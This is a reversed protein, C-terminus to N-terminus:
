NGGLYALNQPHSYAGLTQNTEDTTYVGFIISSPIGIARLEASLLSARTTSFRTQKIEFMYGADIEVLQSFLLNDWDENVSLNKQNWELIRNIADYDTPAGEVIEFMFEKMDDTINSTESSKLYQRIEVPYNSSDIPFSEVESSIKSKLYNAYPFLVVEFILHDDSPNDPTGNDEIELPRVVQYITDNMDAVEFPQSVRMKAYITGPLVSLEEFTTFSFPDTGWIQEFETIYTDGDPDGYPDPTPTPTITPTSTATPAPTSTAAPEETATPTIESTEASICGVLIMAFVTFLFIFGTSKWARKLEM